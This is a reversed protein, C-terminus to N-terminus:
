SGVGADVLCGELWADGDALGKSAWEPVGAAPLGFVKDRVEPELRERASLLTKGPSWPAALAAVAVADTAGCSSFRAGM